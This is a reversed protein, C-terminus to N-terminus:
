KLISLICALIHEKSGLLQIELWEIYSCVPTKLSRLLDFAPSLHHTTKAPQQLETQLPNGPIVEASM